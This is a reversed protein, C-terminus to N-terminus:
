VQASIAFGVYVREEDLPDEWALGLHDCAGLELAEQVLATGGDKAAQREACGGADLAVTMHPPAVGSGSAFRAFLFRGISRGADCIAIQCSSAPVTRDPSGDRACLANALSRQAFPLPM